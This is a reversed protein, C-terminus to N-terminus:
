VGQKKLILELMRDHVGLDELHDRGNLKGVLIRYANKMEGIRAVHGEERLALSWTECGYM